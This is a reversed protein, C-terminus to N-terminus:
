PPPWPPDRSGPPNDAGSTLSLVHSVTDLLLERLAEMDTDVRDREPRVDRIQVTM